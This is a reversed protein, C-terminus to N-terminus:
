IAYHGRVMLINGHLLVFPLPCLFCSSPVANLWQSRVLLAHNFFLCFVFLLRVLLYVASSLQGVNLQLSFSGSLIM